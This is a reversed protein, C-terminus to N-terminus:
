QTVAIAQPQTGAAVAAGATLAGSSGITLVSINNDTDNVVYLFKSAPDVALAIPHKGTPFPSGTVEAISGDAAVGFESVTDDDHNVAFIQAGNPSLALAVPNNGTPVLSSTIPSFDGSNANIAYACIGTEGDTVYMFRYKSDFVISAARGCPTTATTKVNALTGDAGIKFLQVGGSHLGVYVFRSDPDVQISDPTGGTAITGSFATLAGSTPDISYGSINSSGANAVYLFKAAPDIAIGAPASGTPFPSGTIATLVGTSRNVTYASVGGSQNAVYVFKGAADAVISNPGTAAAFPSGSTATLAGSSTNVTYASVTGTGTNNAGNAVFAFKATPTTTTTGGSGSGGGSSSNNSSSNSDVFFGNCGTLASFSLVVLFM